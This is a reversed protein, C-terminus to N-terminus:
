EGENGVCFSELEEGMLQQTLVVVVVKSHEVHRWETSVSWGHIVEGIGWRIHGTWDVINQQTLQNMHIWKGKKGAVKRKLLKM